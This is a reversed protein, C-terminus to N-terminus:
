WYLIPQAWDPFLPLLLIMDSFVTVAGDILSTIGRSVITWFVSINVLMTLACSLVFALLISLLFTLGYLLSAPPALAWEDLGIFRVIFYAFILGPVMRLLTPASRFAMTRAFWFAYLDLPRLLEYGVSGSTFMQQIEADANWPLMALLVQGLWVYAVIQAFSMPPPEVAVAFFAGLVMLKISGRFIQTVLGAIAATRYQM